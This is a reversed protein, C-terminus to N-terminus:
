LSLIIIVHGNLFCVSMIALYILQLSNLVLGRLSELSGVFKIAVLFYPWKCLDPNVSLM